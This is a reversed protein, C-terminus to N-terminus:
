RATRRACPMSFTEAVNRIQISVQQRIARNRLWDNFLRDQRVFNQRTLPLAKDALFAKRNERAEQSWYRADWIMQRVLACTKEALAAKKTTTAGM